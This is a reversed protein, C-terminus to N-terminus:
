GNLESDWDDAPPENEGAVPFLVVKGERDVEIRGVPFGGKIAGRVIRTMDDQKVAARATM